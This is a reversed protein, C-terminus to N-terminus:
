QSKIILAIKVEEEPKSLNRVLERSLEAASKDAHIALTRACIYGSKRIVMDTPHALTLRSNGTAHITEAVKGAEVVITVKADDNRLNKKFELSLEGMGKDAHVAIICDGSRSLHSEKTFEITGKHLALVNIHGQALIVESCQAPDL